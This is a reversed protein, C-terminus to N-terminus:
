PLLGHTDLFARVAENVVEPNEWMPYHGLGEFVVLSASDIADATQEALERPVYYDGDGWGVLLPITVRDLGDRVDHNAWGVLDSAQVRHAGSKHLWMIEEVQDPTADHRISSSSGTEVISEWCAAHPEMLLSADGYTPTHAAGELVIGARLEDSHNVALDMVVDGGISCGMVVPRDLGLAAAFSVIWEGYVHLDDIPKWDIPFSKGHGPLDVAYAAFGLSAFYPLTHRYERGDTGATHICILPVGEGCSEFYTRTGDIEVYRGVIEEFVVSM